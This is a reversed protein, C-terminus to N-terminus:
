CSSDSPFYYWENSLLDLDPYEVGDVSNLDAVCSTSCDFDWDKMGYYMSPVDNNDLFCNRVVRAFKAGGGFFLLGASLDYALNSMSTSGANLIRNRAIRAHGVRNGIFVGNGLPNSIANDVIVLRGMSLLDATSEDILEIGSSFKEYLGFNDADYAPPISPAKYMISNSRIKLTKIPRPEWVVGNGATLNLDNYLVIGHYSQIQYLASDIANRYSVQDLSITNRKIFMRMRGDPDTENHTYSWIVIAAGAGAITNDRILQGRKMDGRNVSINSLNM